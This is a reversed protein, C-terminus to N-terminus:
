QRTELVKTNAVSLVDPVRRWLYGGLFVLFSVGLLGCLAASIAAPTSREAIRMLMLDPFQGVGPRDESKPASKTEGRLGAAILKWLGVQQAPVGIWFEGSNPTIASSLQWNGIVPATGLLVSLAVLPVSISSSVRMVGVAVPLYLVPLFPVLYRPGWGFAGWNRMAGILLVYCVAGVLFSEVAQRIELPISRRLMPYAAGLMFMPSFWILGRNPSFMLGAAGLLPSGSLANNVDFQPASTAPRVPSGMRTYNFALQPALCIATATVASALFRRSVARRRAYLLLGLSIALFPTLSFRFSCAIAFCLGALAGHTCSFERRRVGHLVVGLLGAVGFCGGAVDWCSRSYASFITGILFIVALLLAPRTEVIARLGLFCFWCTFASMVSYTLSAAVRAPIPPREIRPDTHKALIAAPTLVLQSALDHCQYYEGGPSRVWLEPIFGFPESVGLSGSRVFNVASDFQAATDGSGIRGSSILLLLVLFFGLAAVAEKLSIRSPM